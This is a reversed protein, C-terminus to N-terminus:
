SFRKEDEPSGKVEGWANIKTKGDSALYYHAKPDEPDTTANPGPAPENVERTVVRETVIPRGPKATDDVAKQDAAAKAADAAKQDDVAKQADNDAM